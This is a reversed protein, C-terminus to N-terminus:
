DQVLSASVEIRTNETVVDLIARRTERNGRILDAIDGHGTDHEDIIEKIRDEQTSSFGVHDVCDNAISEIRVEQAATFRDRQDLVHNVINELAPTARQDMQEIVRRVIENVFTTVLSNIIEHTM